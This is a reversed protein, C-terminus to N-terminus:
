PLQLERQPSGPPLFVQVEVFHRVPAALSITYGTTARSWADIGNSSDQAASPLACWFFLLALSTLTSVRRYRGPTHALKSTDDKALRLTGRAAQNCRPYRM